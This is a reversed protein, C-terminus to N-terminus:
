AERQEKRLETIIEATIEHFDIETYNMNGKRPYVLRISIPKISLLDIRRM